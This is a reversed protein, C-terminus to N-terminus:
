VSRKQREYRVQMLTTCFATGRDRCIQCDVFQEIFHKAYWSFTKKVQCVPFERTFISRSLFCITGIKRMQAVYERVAMRKVPRGYAGQNPKQKERISKWKRGKGESLTTV